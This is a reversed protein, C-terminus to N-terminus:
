WNKVGLVYTDEVMVVKVLKSRFVVNVNALIQHDVLFFFELNVFKQWVENLSKTIILKIPGAM